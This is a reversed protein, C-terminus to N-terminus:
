KEEIPVLYNWVRKEIVRFKKGKFLDLLDAVYMRYEKDERDFVRICGQAYWSNITAFRVIDNGKVM